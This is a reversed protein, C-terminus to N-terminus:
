SRRSAELATTPPLSFAAVLAALDQRDEVGEVLEIAPGKMLQLKQGTGSAVGSAHVTGDGLHRIPQRSM